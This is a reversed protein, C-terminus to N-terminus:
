GRVFFYVSMGAGIAIVIIRVALPPLRRIIRAGGYAGAIAGLAM